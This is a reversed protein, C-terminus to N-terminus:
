ESMPHRCRKLADLAKEAKSEQFVGMVANIIVVALIIISDAIDEGKSAVFSVIAAVILVIIMLNKFQDLFMMFLTRKKGEEIENRGFKELRKGAEEDSIGEYSSDLSKIVDSIEMTHYLIKNQQDAEM